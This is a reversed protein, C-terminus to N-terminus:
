NEVAKEEETDEKMLEEMSEECLYKAWDDELPEPNGKPFFPDQYAPMECDVFIELGPYRM